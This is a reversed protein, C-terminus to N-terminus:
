DNDKKQLPVFVAGINMFTMDIANRKKVKSFNKKTCFIHWMKHNTKVCCFICMKIANITKHRLLCLVNGVQLRNLHVVKERDIESPHKEVQVM